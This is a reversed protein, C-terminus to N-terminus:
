WRVSKRLERCVRVLEEMRGRREAYGVLARARGARTASGSWVVEGEWGMQLALDELEGVDFHRALKGALGALDRAPRSGAEGGKDVAAVQPEWVPALGAARVQALLAAVGRRLGEVEERLRALEARERTRGKELEELQGRIAEMEEDVLARSLERLEELQEDREVRRQERRALLLILALVGPGAAVILAMPAWLWGEGSM